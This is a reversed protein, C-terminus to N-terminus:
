MGQPRLGHQASEGCPSQWDTFLAEPRRHKFLYHCMSNGAM